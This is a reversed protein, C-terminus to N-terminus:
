QKEILAKVLQALKSIVVKASAMDTVTSDIYESIEAYTKTSFSDLKLQAKAEIAAAKAAEEALRQAEREPAAADWEAQRADAVAEEEPTLLEQGRLTARYRM